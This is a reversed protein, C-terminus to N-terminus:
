RSRDDAKAAMGLSEAASEWQGNAAAVLVQGIHLLMGMSRRGYAACALEAATNVANHAQALILDEFAHRPMSREKSASM